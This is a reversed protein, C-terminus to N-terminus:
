EGQPPPPYFLKERLFPEARRRLIYAGTLMTPLLFILTFLSVRSVMITSGLVDVPIRQIDVAIMWTLVVFPTALVANWLGPRVRYGHEYRDSWPASTLDRCMAMVSWLLGSILALGLLFNVIMGLHLPGLTFQGVWPTPTASGGAIVLEQFSGKGGWETFLVVVGILMGFGVGMWTPRSPVSDEDTSILVRAGNGFVSPLMLFFGAFVFVSAFSFAIGGDRAGMATGMFILVLSFINAGAIPWVRDRGAPKYRERSRPSEFPLPSVLEYSTYSIILATLVFGLGTGPNQQPVYAVGLAPAAQTFALILIIAAGLRISTPSTAIGAFRERTISISDAPSQTLLRVFLEFTDRLQDAAWELQERITPDVREASSTRERERTRTRARRGARARRQWADAKDSQRQQKWQEGFGAGAGAGQTSESHGNKQVQGHQDYQARQVPDMLVEKAERIEMIKERADPEDSVDPHHQKVQERYAQKIETETAEPGVGLLEYYSETM